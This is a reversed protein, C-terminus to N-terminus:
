HSKFRHGEAKLSTSQHKNIPEIIYKLDRKKRYFYTHLHTTSAEGPTAEGMGLFRFLFPCRDCLKSHEASISVIRISRFNAGRARKGHPAGRMATYIVNCRVACGLRSIKM